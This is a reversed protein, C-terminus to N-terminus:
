RSSALHEAVDVGCGLTRGGLMYGGKGAAPGEQETRGDNRAVLIAGSVADVSSSMGNGDAVDAVQERVFDIAGSLDSGEGSTECLDFSLDVSVGDVLGFMEDQEKAVRQRVEEKEMETLGGGLIVDM